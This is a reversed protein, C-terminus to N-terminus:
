IILYLILVFGVPAIHGETVASKKSPTYLFALPHCALSTVAQPDSTHLNIHISITLDSLHCPFSRESSNGDKLYWM